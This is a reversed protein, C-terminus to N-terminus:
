PEDARSFHSMINDPQVVNRFETQRQWLDDPHEPLVRLRHKGSDLKMWEPIPQPHTDQELAALQEPSH